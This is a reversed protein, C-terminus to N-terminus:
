RTVLRGDLAGSAVQVIADPDSPTATGRWAVHADPRVLFADFGGYVERAPEDPDLVLTDYPIRAAGLAREIGSTDVRSGFRLVTYWPGLRDLLADGDKLWM